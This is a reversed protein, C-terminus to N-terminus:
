QRLQDRVSAIQSVADCSWSGQVCRDWPHLRRPKTLMSRRISLAAPAGGHHASESSVSGSTVRSPHVGRGSSATWASDDRSDGGGWPCVVGGECHGRTFKSVSLLGPPSWSVSRSVPGRRDGPRYSRALSSVDRFRFDDAVRLECCIALSSRPHLSFCLSRTRTGPRKSSPSCTLHSSTTTLAGVTSRPLHRRTM